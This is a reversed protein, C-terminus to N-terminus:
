QRTNQTDNLISPNLANELFTRSRSVHPGLREAVEQYNIPATLLREIKASEAGELLRDELGCVGLFDLLRAPGRVGSASQSSWVVFPKKFKVAFITGHFSNTCIFAAERLFQLWEKPGVSRLPKAGLVDAVKDDPAIVPIQLRARVEHLLKVGDSIKEHPLFYAAIYDRKTTKRTIFKEFDYLLTPDLVIEADRGSLERVLQASMRNRVSIFDFHKLLSGAATLTWAPQIPDGFCAAYSIRRCLPKEIFDLFYTGNFSDENWGNWVQDSGVIISDFDASIARLAETSGCFRTRPLYRCRFQDFRLRRLISAPLHLGTRFGWGKWWASEAGPPLYNIFRVTHGMSRVTQYLAHAQLLAGYNNAYQFTLIGVKM